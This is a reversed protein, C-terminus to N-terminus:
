QLQEVTIYVSYPLQQLGSRKDIRYSLSRSKLVRALFVLSSAHGDAEVSLTADSRVGNEDHWGFNVGWVDPPQVNGATGYTSIRYVADAEPTVLETTRVNEVQNELSVQAVISASRNQGFCVGAGVLLVLALGALRVKM